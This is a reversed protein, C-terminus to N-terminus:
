ILERHNLFFPNYYPNRLTSSALLLCFLLFYLKAKAREREKKVRKKLNNVCNEEEAKGNPYKAEDM